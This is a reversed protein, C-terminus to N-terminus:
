VVVQIDIGIRGSHMNNAEIGFPLPERVVEGLYNGMAAIFFRDVAILFVDAFRSVPMLVIYREDASGSM